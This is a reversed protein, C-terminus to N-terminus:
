EKVPVLAPSDPAGSNGPGSRRDVAAAIKTVSSVLSAHLAHTGNLLDALDTALDEASWRLPDSNSAARVVGLITLAAALRQRLFKGDLEAAARVAALDKSGLAAAFLDNILDRAGWAARLHNGILGTEDLAAPKCLAEELKNHIVMIYLQLQSACRHCEERSRGCYACRAEPLM